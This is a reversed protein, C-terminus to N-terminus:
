STVGLVRRAGAFSLKQVLKTPRGIGLNVQVAENRDQLSHTLSHTFNTILRHSSQIATSIRGLLKLAAVATSGYHLQYQYAAMASCYLSSQCHHWLALSPFIGSSHRDLGLQSHTAASQRFHRRNSFGALLDCSGSPQGFRYAVITNVRPRKKSCTPTRGM